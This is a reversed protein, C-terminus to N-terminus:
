VCWAREAEPCKCQSNERGPISKGWIITHCAEKDGKPSQEWTERKESYTIELEKKRGDRCRLAGEGSKNKVHASKM